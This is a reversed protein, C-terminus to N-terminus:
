WASSVACIVLWWQVLLKLIRTQNRRSPTVKPNLCDCVRKGQQLEPKLFCLPVFDPSMNHKALLPANQLSLDMIINIKSFTPSQLSLATWRKWTLWSCLPQSVCGLNLLDPGTSFCPRSVCSQHAASTGQSDQCPPGRSGLPWNSELM